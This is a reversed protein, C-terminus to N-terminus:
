RGEIAQRAAPLCDSLDGALAGYSGLRQRAMEGALGHWYVGLWAADFPTLGQAVLAAIVGSLVDGSGATAMAPDGSTNIRLDGAPNAVCTGAGKLCVVSASQSAAKRAYSLRDEGIARTEVGMLYAMEGPHPTLIYKGGLTSLYSPGGAERLAYLGDADILCPVGAAKAADLVLRLFEAQRAGRGLGPGVVMCSSRAAFSALLGATEGDAGFVPGAGCPAVMVEPVMSACVQYIEGPCLLTSTGAGARLAAKAALVAAGAMGKSGAIVTVHGSMGKHHEPLRRPMPLLADERFVAQAPRFATLLRPPLGLTEVVVRGAYGRGPYVMLGVKALGMTVTVDATIVPDYPYGTDANLGTPVDCAVVPISEERRTDNAWKVAWDLPPRPNGKQGTGLLADIIVGTPEADIGGLQGYLDGAPVTVRILDIPYGKLAEFSVRAEPPLRDDSGFLAVRVPHGASSLHRAACFGDGGNQGPGALIVAAQGPKLFAAAEAALARGANEMLALAPIGAEVASADVKRMEDTTVLYM